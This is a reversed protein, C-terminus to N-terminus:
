NGHRASPGACAAFRGRHLECVPPRCVLIDLVFTAAMNPSAILKYLNLQYHLLAKVRIMLSLDGIPWNTEILYDNQELVDM